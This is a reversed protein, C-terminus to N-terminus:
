CSSGIGQKKKLWSTLQRPVRGQSWEVETDIYDMM